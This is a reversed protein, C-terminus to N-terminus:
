VFEKHKKKVELIFYDDLENIACATAADFESDFKIIKNEKNKFFDSFELDKVLIFKGILNDDM